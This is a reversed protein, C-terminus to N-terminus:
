VDYLLETLWRRQTTRRDTWVVGWKLADLQHSLAPVFLRVLPRAKILDKVLDSPPNYRM